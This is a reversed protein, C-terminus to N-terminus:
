VSRANLVVVLLQRRSACVVTGGSCHEVNFSNISSSIVVAHLWHGCDMKVTLWQVQRTHHNGNLWKCQTSDQRSVVDMSLMWCQLQATVWNTMSRGFIWWCGRIQLVRDASSQVFRRTYVAGTSVMNCRAHACQISNAADGMYVAVNNATM